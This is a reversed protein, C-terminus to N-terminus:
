ATYTGTGTFTLITYSGSTTVQPSGTSTGTYKSTLIRLIVVGSGGAGSSGGPPRSKGGGGGGTNNGGAGATEGSASASGGGGGSNKASTGGSSGPSGGGGSGGGGGGIGGNGPAENSAGYAAGGGGGGWYYNNGDINVQLGAGGTGGNNGDSGYGGVAATGGGGPMDQTSNTGGGAYGEAVTGSGSPRTPDGGGGCGGNLPAVAGNSSGGAGGGSTSVTTIGSGSFSSGGGSNGRSSDSFQASGGGGVTATYTVGTTLTLDPQASAGGGSVSGYSTRLGGAGGGSANHVGGSAGGAVVLFDVTIPLPTITQQYDQTATGGSTDTAKITWTYNTNSAVDSATGTFATNGTTPLTCGTPMTGSVLTYTLQADTDVDDTFDTGLNYSFTGYGQIAGITVTGGTTTPNANSVLNWQTGNSIYFVDTDSKYFLSGEDSVPSPITAGVVVANIGTLNAGSIAPLTAPFRGDPLTGTTLASADDSAPVNDLSTSKVDGNADLLSSLNRSNSM